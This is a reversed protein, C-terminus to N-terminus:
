LEEPIRRYGNNDLLYRFEVEADLAAQEEATHGNRAASAKWDLVFDRSGEATLGIHARWKSGAIEYYWYSLVGNRIKRYIKASCIM